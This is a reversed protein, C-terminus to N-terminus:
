SHFVKLFQEFAIWQPIQRLQMQEGSITSTFLKQVFIARFKQEAMKHRQLMKAGEFMPFQGSTFPRFNDTLSHFLVAVNRKILIELGISIRFIGFNTFPKFKVNKKSNNQSM